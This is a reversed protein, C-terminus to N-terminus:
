TLGLGQGLTQKYIDYIAQEQTPTLACFFVMQFAQIGEYNRGFYNGIIFNGGGSYSSAGVMNSTSEVSNPTSVQNWVSLRAKKGLQGQALSVNFITNSAGGSITSTGSGFAGLNTNGSLGFGPPSNPDGLTLSSFNIPNFSWLVSTTGTATGRCFCSLVSVDSIFKILPLNINDISQSSAQVFTIGNAGWTPGNILTGNLNNDLNGLNYLTSGTGINHQSRMPWAVWLSPHIIKSLADVFNNVSNKDTVVGGANEIKTFYAKAVPHIFTRAM